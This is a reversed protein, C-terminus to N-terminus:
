AHSVGNLGRRTAEIALQTRDRVGLKVFLGRLDNKVTGLSVNLRQAIQINALGEAVLSVLAFERGGLGDWGSARCAGGRLQALVAQAVRPHIYCGGQAVIQMALLLEDPQASKVVFGSAGARFARVALEVDNHSAVALLPVGFFSDLCGLESGDLLDLLVLASGSRAFEESCVESPSCEYVVELGPESELLLRLGQRALVLGDVLTIRM